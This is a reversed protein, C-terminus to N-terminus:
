LGVGKEVRAKKIDGKPFEGEVMHEIARRIAESRCLGHELAYMDLLILLDEDTKFTVIRM